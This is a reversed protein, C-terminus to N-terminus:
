CHRDNEGDNSRPDAYDPLTRRSEAGVHKVERSTHHEGDDRHLKKGLDLASREDRVHHDAERSADDRHEEDVLEEITDTSVSIVILAM